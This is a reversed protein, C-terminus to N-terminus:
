APANPFDAPTEAFRVIFKSTFRLVIPFSIQDWVGAAGRGASVAFPRFTRSASSRTDRIAMLVGTKSKSLTVNENVCCFRAWFLPTRPRGPKALTKPRTGKKWDERGSFPGENIYWSPREDSGWPSTMMFDFPEKGKKPPEVTGPSRAGRPLRASTKEWLLRMDIRVDRGRHSPAFM